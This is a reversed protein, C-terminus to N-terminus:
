TKSEKLEQRRAQIKERNAIYYERQQQRIEDRRTEYYETNCKKRTDKRKEVNLMAGKFNLCLPNRIHQQIHEDERKNLQERNECSFEEILLIRVKDWENHIHNYVKREPSLLSKSKHNNLRKRLDDYTSGIYFHGDEHQLKYIKSKEYGM